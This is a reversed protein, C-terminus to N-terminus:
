TQWAFPEFRERQLESPVAQNRQESRRSFRCAVNPNGLTLSSDSPIENLARPASLQQKLNRTTARLVGEGVPAGAQSAPADRSGVESNASMRNRASHKTQARNVAISRIFRLSVQGLQSEKMKM